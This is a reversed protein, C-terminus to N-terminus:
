ASEGDPKLSKRKRGTFMAKVLNEKEAYSSYIVGLVHLIVLLLTLNSLLEHLEEWFEERAEHEDEGRGNHKDEDAHASTILVPMPSSANSDAVWGALPGANDEVAYIMLGSYVTGVLSILLAIIMAAGAPNHGIYRKARHSTLDRLYGLTKAPSRVFSSFRAHKSGIFGWILRLVIVVGVVYGAWVHQTLLDDETFYATFFALVLTWHGIRVIPDWVKVKSDSVKM